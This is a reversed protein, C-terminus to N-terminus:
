GQILGGYGVVRHHTERKAGDMPDAHNEILIQPHQPLHQNSGLPRHIEGTKM